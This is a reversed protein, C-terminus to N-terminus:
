EHAEEIKKKVLKRSKKHLSLSFGAPLRAAHIRAVPCGPPKAALRYELKLIMVTGGPIPDALDTKLKGILWLKKHGIWEPIM